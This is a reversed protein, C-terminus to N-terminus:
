CVGQCDLAALASPREQIVTACAHKDAIDAVCRFLAAACPEGRDLMDTVIRLAATEQAASGDPLGIHRGYAALLVLVSVATVASANDGLSLALEGTLGLMAMGEQEPMDGVQMAMILENYIVNVAAPDGRAVGAYVAEAQARVNAGDGGEWSAALRLSEPLCAESLENLRRAADEHGNDAAQGFARIAEADATVARESSGHTREWAAQLAKAEGLRYLSERDGSPQAALHAWFGAAVVARQRDYTCPGAVDIAAAALAQYGTYDGERGRETASGIWDGTM